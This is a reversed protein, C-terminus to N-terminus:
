PSTDEARLVNGYRDIEIEVGDAFHFTRHGEANRRMEILRAYERCERHHFIARALAATDSIESDQGLMKKAVDQVAQALRRGLEGTFAAAGAGALFVVVDHMEASAGISVLTKKDEVRWAYIGNAALFTMVAQTYVDEIDSLGHGDMRLSLLEEHQSEDYGGTQVIRLTYFDSM